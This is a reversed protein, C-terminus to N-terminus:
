LKEGKVVIEWGFYKSFRHGSIFDLPISIVYHSIIAVARILKQLAKLFLNKSHIFKSLRYFPNYGDQDLNKLGLESFVKKLATSSFLLELGYRRSKLLKQDFYNYIFHFLNLKHPVAVIIKGGKKVVRKMEKVIKKYDEFHEIVGVNFVVDFHNNKFPLKFIDAKKFKMNKLKRIQVGKKAIKLTKTSLDIGIIKSNPFKKALGICKRGSGCGAELIKKDKKTIWKTVVDFGEKSFPMWGYISTFKFVQDQSEREFKEGWVDKKMYFM